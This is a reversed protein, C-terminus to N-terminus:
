PPTKSGIATIIMDQVAGVRASHESLGEVVADSLGAAKAMGKYIHTGSQMRPVLSCNVRGYERLQPAGIDKKVLINRSM